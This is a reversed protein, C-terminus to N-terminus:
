SKKAKKKKEVFDFIIFTTEIAALMILFSGFFFKLLNDDISNALFSTGVSALIGLGGLILGSKYKVLKNKFHIILAFGAMVVFAVLNILQAQKQAFGMFITLMPILLTGGGMGMGGCVGGAIGIIILWVITM